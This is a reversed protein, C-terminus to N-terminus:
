PLSIVILVVLTILTYLFYLNMHGHQLRRIPLFKEYLLSFLPLYIRELVTEPVHSEFHPNAPFPGMIHPMHRRPRLIVASLDVLMGAFSSATYQMRSSPELYGCGWTGTTTFTTKKVRGRYWFLVCLSVALLAVALISIWALHAVAVLSTSEPSRPLWVSVASELLPAVAAPAVGIACCVIALIMMPLLMTWKAEHI